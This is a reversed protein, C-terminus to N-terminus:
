RGGRLVVACDPTKGTENITMIQRGKLATFIPSDPMVDEIVYYGRSTVAPYCWLFTDLQDVPDHSGDDIFVDIPSSVVRLLRQLDWLRRQDGHILRVKGDFTNRQLVDTRGLALDALITRPRIIRRKDMGIIRWRPYAKHWLRISNLWGIGIEVLVADTDELHSFLQSYADTYKVAKDTGEDIALRTLESSWKETM